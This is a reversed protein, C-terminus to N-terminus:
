PSAAPFRGSPTQHSHSHGHDRGDAHDHDHMRGPEHDHDHGHPHTPRFVLSKIIVPVAQVHKLEAGIDIYDFDSLRLEDVSIVSVGPAVETALLNGIMGGVDGDFALVIPLGRATRDRLADAVGDSLARLNRYAPERDWRVALALPRDEDEIDGRRLAARVANAVAGATFEDGELDDSLHPAVVQLNHLPLLDPSTIFITSGSIQLTYQAAGIATARIRAASPVIPIGLTDLRRRVAAGLLPGLDGFAHSESGMIYEGVGGSCTILDIPGAFHIPETILLAEALPSLSERKVAEFLCDALRDALARQDFATLKDGLELRIGLTDAVTRAADEVRTLRGEDDMAVLRAGVNIAFTEAVRGDSVVSLKSTGGGVDVNLVTKGRSESLDVAGSGYAAMLAELNPGATACVFKGAQEAFLAAIAEANEKKAAEGTVIVAGADIADREFGAARYAEGIFRDLVDVDITTAHGLYPTLLIPSQYTVSREVIEFRSSMAAGVRMLLLRSFMLHSTSSGIDIGVSNLEFAEHGDVFRLGHVREFETAMEHEHEPDDFDHSHGTGGHYHM